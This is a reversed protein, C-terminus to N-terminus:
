RGLARDLGRVVILGGLFAVSAILPDFVVLHAYVAM